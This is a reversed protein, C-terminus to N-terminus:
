CGAPCTCRRTRRKARARLSNHCLPPDAAVVSGDEKFSATYGKVRERNIRVHYVPGEWPPVETDGTSGARSGRRTGSRTPPSSRRRCGVPDVPRPTEEIIKADAAVELHYLIPETVSEEGVRRDPCGAPPNFVTGRYVAAGKEQRIPWGSAGTVPFTTEFVARIAEPLSGYV